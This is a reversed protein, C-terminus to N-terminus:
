KKSETYADWGTKSQFDNDSVWWMDDDFVILTKYERDKLEPSSFRIEFARFLKGEIVKGRQKEADEKSRVSKIARCDNMIVTRKAISQIVISNANLPTNPKSSRMDYIIDNAIERVSREQNKLVWEIVSETMINEDCTLHPMLKQPADALMTVTSNFLKVAGQESLNSLSPNSLSKNGVERVAKGIWSEIAKPQESNAEEASLEGNLVKEINWIKIIGAEDGSVASKGDPSFSVTMVKGKHGYYVKLRSATKADWLELTKDSGTLIYKGDPSFALSLHRKSLTQLSKVLVGREIDYINLISNKEGYMAVYKGNASVGAVSSGVPNINFDTLKKGTSIDWCSITNNYEISLIKEADPCFAVGSIGGKTSIGYRGVFRQIIKKSSTDWLNITDDFSASLLSKGDFSFAIDTIEKKHSVSMKEVSGSSLDWLYLDRNEPFAAWKGDPSISFKGTVYKNIDHKHQFIKTGDSVAWKSVSQGDGSLIYLGDPSFIIDYNCHNASLTLEADSQFQVEADEVHKLLKEALQTTQKSHDAALKAKAVWGAYALIDWGSAKSQINPDGSETGPLISTASLTLVDDYKGKLTVKKVAIVSSLQPHFGVLLVEGTGPLNNINFRGNDPGKGPRTKSYGLIENKDLTLAFVYGNGVPYPNGVNNWLRGGISSQNPKPLSIEAGQAICATQMLLCFLIAKISLSQLTSM